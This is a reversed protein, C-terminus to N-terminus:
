LMCSACPEVVPGAQVAGRENAPLEIWVTASALYEPKLYRTATYGLATGVAIVALMLWKYRKLAAIYRGWQIGGEDQEFGGMTGPELPGLANYDPLPQLAEPRKPPLLNGAM